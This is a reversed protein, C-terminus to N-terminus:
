WSENMCREERKLLEIQKLTSKTDPKEVGWVSHSFGEYGKDKKAESKFKILVNKHRLSDIHLKKGEKSLAGYDDAKMEILSLAHEGIV